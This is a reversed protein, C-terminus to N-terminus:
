PCDTIIINLVDVFVFHTRAKGNKRESAFGRETALQEATMSQRERRGSM